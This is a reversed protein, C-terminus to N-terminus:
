QIMINKFYLLRSTFFCFILRVKLVITAFMSVMEATSAENVDTYLRVLLPVNDVKELHEKVVFFHAFFACYFWHCIISVMRLVMHFNLM